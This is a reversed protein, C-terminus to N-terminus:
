RYLAKRIEAVRQLYAERMYIGHKDTGLAHSRSMDMAFSELAVRITMAQASTLRTGNIVIDPESQVM